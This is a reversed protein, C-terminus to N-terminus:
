RLFQELSTVLAVHQDTKLPAGTLFQNFEFNTSLRREIRFPIPQLDPIRSRDTSLGFGLPEFQVELGSNQKVYTGLEGNLTELAQLPKLIAPNAEIFLNSEYSRNVSKSFSSNFGLDAKLWALFDNFFADIHDTNSRCSVVFGDSYIALKDIALQDFEGHLFEIGDQLRPSPVQPASAFRYRDTTEAILRSAPLQGAPRGIELLYTATSLEFALIKM